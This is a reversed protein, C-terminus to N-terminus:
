RAVQFSTVQLLRNKDGPRGAEDAHV